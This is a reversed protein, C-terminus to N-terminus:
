SFVAFGIFKGEPNPLDAAHFGRSALKKDSSAGSAAVTVDWGAEQAGAALPLRHSWFWDMHNIVYLLKQPRTVPM